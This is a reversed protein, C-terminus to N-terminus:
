VDLLFRLTLRNEWLLARIFPFAAILIIKMVPNFNMSSISWSENNESDVDLGISKSFTVPLCIRLLKFYAIAVKVGIIM